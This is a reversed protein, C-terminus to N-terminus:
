KKGHELFDGCTSVFTRFVKNEFACRVRVPEQRYFENFREINDRIKGEILEGRGRVKM